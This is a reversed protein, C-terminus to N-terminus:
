ATGNFYAQAKNWAQTGVQAGLTRGNMDGQEFHIGGYRRSLGASNAADTFSKFTLTTAKAPVLGPSPATAPPTSPSRRPSSTPRRTPSGPRGTM